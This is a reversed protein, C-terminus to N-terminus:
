HWQSIFWHRLAVDPVNRNTWYRKGGWGGYPIAGHAHQPICLLVLTHCEPSVFSHMRGPWTTWDEGQQHRTNVSRCCMGSGVEHRLVLRM